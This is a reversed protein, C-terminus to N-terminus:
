GVNLAQSSFTERSTCEEQITENNPLVMPMPNPRREPLFPCLYHKEHNCGQLIRRQHSLHESFSQHNADPSGLMYEVLTQVFEEVHQEYVLRIGCMEVQVGPDGSKFLAGIHNCRNLVLRQSSEDSLDGSLFPQTHRLLFQFGSYHLLITSDLKYGAQKMQIGYLAYVTFGLWTSNYHVDPPLQM